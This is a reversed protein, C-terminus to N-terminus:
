SVEYLINKGKVNTAKLLRAEIKLISTDSCEIVKAMKRIKVLSHCMVKM